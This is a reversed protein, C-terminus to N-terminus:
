NTYKSKNKRTKNPIHDPINDKNLSQIENKLQSILEKQKKRVAESREFSIALENYDEQLKAITNKLEERRGLEKKLNENEKRLKEGIKRENDVLVRHKEVQRSNSNNRKKKPLSSPTISRELKTIEKESNEINKIREKSSNRLAARTIAPSERSSSRSSGKFSSGPSVNKQRKSSKQRFSDSNKSLRSELFALKDQLMKLESNIASAKSTDKPPLDEKKPSDQFSSSFNFDAKAVVPSSRSISDTSEHLAELGRDLISHLRREQSPSLEISMNM